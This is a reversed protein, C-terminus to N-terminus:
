KGSNRIALIRNLVPPHTYNLFVNLWHPTLNSLNEKSLKKLGSILSDPMKATKVSYADASFENKRSIFTFFIGIVMSIPAYLMTFFVLSAYVSLNEMQFVNFLLTNNIFISLIYLM